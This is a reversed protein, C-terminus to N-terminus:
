GEQAKNQGKSRRCRPTCCCDKGADAGWVNRVNNYAVIRVFSAPEQSVLLYHLHNNPIPNQLFLLPNPPFAVVRKKVVRLSQSWCPPLPFTPNSYLLHKQKYNHTHFTYHTTPPLHSTNRTVAKTKRHTPSLQPLTFYPLSQLLTTLFTTQRSADTKWFSPLLAPTGIPHLGLAGLRPELFQTLNLFSSGSGSGSGEAGFGKKKSIRLM